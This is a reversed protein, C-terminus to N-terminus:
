DEEYKKLLINYTLTKLLSNSYDEILEKVSPDAKAAEIIWYTEVIKKFYGFWHGNSTKKVSLIRKPMQDKRVM